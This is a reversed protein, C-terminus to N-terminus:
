SSRTSELIQIQSFRIPCDPPMSFRKTDRVPGFNCKRSESEHDERYASSASPQSSTLPANIPYAPGYWSLDGSIRAAQRSSHPVAYIVDLVESSRVRPLYLAWSM